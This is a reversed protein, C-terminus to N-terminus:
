GTPEGPEPPVPPPVVPPAPAPAPQVEPEAPPESITKWLDSYWPGAMEADKEEPKEPEKYDGPLQVQFPTDGPKVWRLRGRAQAEIYAPDSYREELIRLEQLDKELQVQEAAVRDAEGRQTLYNRLPVALTLALLLVVMVLVLARGTSLGLITHESRMTRAAGAAGVRRPRARGPLVKGTDAGDVADPKGDAQGPTTSKTTRPPRAGGPAGDARNGRVREGRGSGRGGPSAGSSRPRGRQAM